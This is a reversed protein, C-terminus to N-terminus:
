FALDGVEGRKSVEDGMGAVRAKGGTEEDGGDQEFEGRLDAEQLQLVLQAPLLQM